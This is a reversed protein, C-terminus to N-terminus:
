ATEGMRDHRRDRSEGPPDECWYPPQTRPVRFYPAASCSSGSARIQLGHGLEEPITLTVGSYGFERLWCEVVTLAYSQFITPSCGDILGRSDKRPCIVKFLREKSAIPLPSLALQIIRRVLSKWRSAGSGGYLYLFLVGNARMVSAINRLAELTNGTHHLVGFSFVVDYHRGSLPLELLNATLMRLRGERLAEPVLSAAAHRLKTLAAQSYDVATVHAGLQLFPITWRGIGCGADLVRRDRFYEAEIALVDECLWQKAYRWHLSLLLREDTVTRHMYDYTELTQRQFFNM